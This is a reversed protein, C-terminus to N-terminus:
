ARERGPAPLVPRYHGIIPHEFLLPEEQTGRGINHLVLPTGHSDRRDSVIGIHLLGSGHLKWAVIDGARYDNAGPTIPRAWGQRRFWIMQSPVRRHDINRDIATHMTSYAAAHALRDRHIERQLDIGPIRLARIVVDTCVGRDALVDGGPYAMAVYSPDYRVTAGVQRRAARVLPPSPLVPRTM